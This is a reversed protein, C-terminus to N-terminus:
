KKVELFKEYLKEFFKFHLSIFMMGIGFLYFGNRAYNVAPIYLDLISCTEYQNNTDYFISDSLDTINHVIASVFRNHILDITHFGMWFLSIGLIIFGIGVVGFFKNLINIIREWNLDIGEM